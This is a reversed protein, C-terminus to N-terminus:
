RWGLRDEEGIHGLELHQVQRLSEIKGSRHSAM